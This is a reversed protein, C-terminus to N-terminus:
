STAFAGEAFGVSGTHQPTFGDTGPETLPAGPESNATSSAAADGGSSKPSNSQKQFKSIGWRLDHGLADAEVEVSTGSKEEREWRRVRLRGNAIIRDGVAFSDKAHAGLSRFANITVWNTPGDVWENRERDFRRENCALRFTCFSTPTGVGIEQPATAVTGIVTIHNSM